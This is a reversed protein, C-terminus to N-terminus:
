ERAEWIVWRKDRATRKVLRERVGGGRLQKTCCPALRAQKPWAEHQRVPRGAAGHSIQGQCAFDRRTGEDLLAASPGSQNGFTALFETEAKMKKM